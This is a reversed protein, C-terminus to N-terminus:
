RYRDEDVANILIEVLVDLAALTMRAHSSLQRRVNPIERLKTEDLDGILEAADVMMELDKGGDALLGKRAKLGRHHRLLIPTAGDVDDIGDLAKALDEDVVDAQLLSVLHNLRPRPNVRDLREEAPLLDQMDIGTLVFIGKIVDASVGQEPRAVQHGDALMQCREAGLLPAVLM